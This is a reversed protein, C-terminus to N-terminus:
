DAAVAPVMHGVDGHILIKDGVKTIWIPLKPNAKVLIVAVDARAEPIVTVRAAADRIEASPAAAAAGATGIALTLAALVLNRM